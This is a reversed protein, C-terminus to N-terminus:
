KGGEATPYADEVDAYFDVIFNGLAALNVAYSPDYFWIKSLYLVEGGELGNAMGATDETVKHYLVAGADTLEDIEAWTLGLTFTTEDEGTAEVTIPVNVASGGGGGGGSGWSVAGEGSSVTNKLVYTGDSAPDAPLKGKGDVILNGRVHLDGDIKTPEAM